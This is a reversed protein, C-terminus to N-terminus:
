IKFVIYFMGVIIINALVFTRQSNNRSRKLSLESARYASLRATLVVKSDVGVATYLTQESELQAQRGIIASM